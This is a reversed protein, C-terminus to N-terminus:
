ILSLKLRLANIENLPLFGVGMKDMQEMIFKGKEAEIANNQLEYGAVMRSVGTYHIM